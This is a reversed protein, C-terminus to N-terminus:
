DMRNWNKGKIRRRKEEEFKNEDKERRGIERSYRETQRLIILGKFLPLIALNEFM